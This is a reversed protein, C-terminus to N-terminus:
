YPPKFGDLIHSGAQSHVGETCFLDKIDLPVGELTRAEGAAIRRDSAAAMALARDPTECVYANLARASEMNAVYAQCLETASFAKKALGDRIEAITLLTLDNM